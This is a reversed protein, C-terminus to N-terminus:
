NAENPLMLFHVFFITGVYFDESCPRHIIKLKWTVNEKFLYQQQNKWFRKTLCMLYNQCERADKLIFSLWSRFYISARFKMVCM